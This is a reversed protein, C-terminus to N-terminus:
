SLTDPTCLHLLDTKLFSTYFHQAIIVDSSREITSLLTSTQVITRSLVYATQERSELDYSQQSETTDSTFEVLVELVAGRHEYKEDYHKNEDRVPEGADPERDAAIFSRAADM